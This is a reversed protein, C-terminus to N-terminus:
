LSAEAAPTVKRRLEIEVEPFHKGFLKVPKHKVLTALSCFSLFNHDFHL